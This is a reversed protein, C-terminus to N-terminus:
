YSGDSLESLESLPKEPPSEDFSDSEIWCKILLLWFLTSCIDGSEILESCLPPDDFEYEVFELEFESVSDFLRWDSEILVDDILKTLKSSGM